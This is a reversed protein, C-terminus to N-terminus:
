LPRYILKAYKEYKAIYYSLDLIALGSLGYKTFLLDGTFEQKQKQDIFLKIKSFIKIGKANKINKNNCEIQVLSAFMDVLSHGFKKAIKYLHQM